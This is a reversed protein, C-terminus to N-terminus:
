AECIVPKPVGIDLLCPHVNAKNALSASHTVFVKRALNSSGLGGWIEVTPVKRFAQAGIIKWPHHCMNIGLPVMSSETKDITSGIKLAVFKSCKLSRQVCIRDVWRVWSGDESWMPAVFDGVSVTVQHLHVLKTGDSPMLASNGAEIPQDWLNLGTTHHKIRLTEGVIKDVPSTKNHGECSDTSKNIHSWVAVYYYYQYRDDRLNDDRQRNENGSLRRQRRRGTPWTSMSSGICVVQAFFAGFFVHRGYTM